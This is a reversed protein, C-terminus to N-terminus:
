MGVLPRAGMEAKEVSASSAHMMGDAALYGKVAEFEDDTLKPLVPVAYAHTLGDRQGKNVEVRLEFTVSGAMAGRPEVSCWNRRGMLARQDAPLKHTPKGADVDFPALMAETLGDADHDAGGSVALPKAVAHLARIVIGPPPINGIASSIIQTMHAPHNLWHNAPVSSPFIHGAGGCHVDGSVLTIRLNGREHAIRGLMDLAANREAVHNASTWHDNLDDLLEPEGLSNVITKFAGTKKLYSFWPMKGAVHGVANAAIGAVSIASEAHLRPYVMPVTACVFLHRTTPALQTRLADEILSWSGGSLLTAVSRETRTDILVAANHPGMQLVASHGGREVGLYGDARALALTTHHQFLLYFRQAAFFMGRFVPSAQLYGPYSGYGDFIDHDDWVFMSPISALADAFGDKAFHRLYQAFYFGHVADNMGRSFAATAKADKQKLALWPQLEPLDWVGDMYVQDGGGLMAHYKVQAHKRLVDRWLPAIGAYEREVDPNVDSSFGNCSTFAWNWQANRGPVAFTYPESEPRRTGPISYRMEASALGNGTTPMPVAVDMRWFRHDAFADLLTAPGAVEPIADQASTMIRIAPSETVGPKAVVLVSYRCRGTALDTGLFKLYPGYFRDGCAPGTLDVPTTTTTDPKHTGFFPFKRQDAAAAAAVDVDAGRGYPRHTFIQEDDDATRDAPLPGSTYQGPGGRYYGRQSWPSWPGHSDDDSDSM